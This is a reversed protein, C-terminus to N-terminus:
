AVVCGQCTRQRIADIWDDSFMDAAGYSGSVSPLVGVKGIVAVPVGPCAQNSM